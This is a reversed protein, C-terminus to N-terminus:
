SVGYSEDDDNMDNDDCYGGVNEYDDGDAAGCGEIGGYTPQTLLIKEEVRPGNEIGPHYLGFPEINHNSIRYDMHVVLDLSRVESALLVVKYADWEPRKYNQAVEQDM